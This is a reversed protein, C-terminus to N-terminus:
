NSNWDQDGEGKKIQHHNNDCPNFGILSDFIAIRNRDSEQFLPPILIIGDPRNEPIKPAGLNINGPFIGNIIIFFTKMSDPTFFFSSATMM